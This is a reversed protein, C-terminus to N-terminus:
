GFVLAAGFLGLLIGAAVVATLKQLIMALAKDTENM